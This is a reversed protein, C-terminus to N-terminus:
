KGRTTTSRDAITAAIPLHIMVRVEIQCTGNDDANAVALVRQVTKTLEMRLAAGAVLLTQYPSRRVGCVITTDDLPRHRDALFM